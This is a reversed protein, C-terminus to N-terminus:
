TIIEVLTIDAHNWLEGLDFCSIILSLNCLKLLARNNTHIFGSKFFGPVFYSLNIYTLSFQMFVFFLLFPSILSCFLLWHVWWLSFNFFYIFLYFFLIKVVLLLSPVLTPSSVDQKAIKSMYSQCNATESQNKVLTFNCFWNSSVWLCYSMITYLLVYWKAQEM